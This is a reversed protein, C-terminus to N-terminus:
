VSAGAHPARVRARVEDVHRQWFEAVLSEAPRGELEFGLRKANLGCFHAGCRGLRPLHPPFPSAITIDDLSVVRVERGRSLAAVQLGQEDLESVLPASGDSLVSLLAAELDLAPPLGRLGLNRPQDGCLAAFRGFCAKVDEALLVSDGDDDLWAALADPVGWLICDNDLSLEKLDPFYRLPALKWAVGEAMGGDLHPGLFSPLRHNADNWEIADPVRGVRARAVELPVTNVCVAYRAADGFLTWAGWISLQLAEFGRPSVDGITWRIGLDPM